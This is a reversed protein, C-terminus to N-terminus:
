LFHLFPTLCLISLSVLFIPLDSLRLLFIPHQALRGAKIVMLSRLGFKRFLVLNLSILGAFILNLSTLLFCRSFIVVTMSQNLDSGCFFFVLWTKYLKVYSFKIWWYRFLQQITGNWKSPRYSVDAVWNNINDVM